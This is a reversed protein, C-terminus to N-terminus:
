KGFLKSLFGRKVEPASSYVGSITGTVLLNGGDKELSEIKLDAGEIHIRGGRSSIIVCGDDFGLIELVGNIKVSGGDTITVTQKEEM